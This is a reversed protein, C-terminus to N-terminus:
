FLEPRASGRALFNSFKRAPRLRALFIEQRALDPWMKRGLFAIKTYYDELFWEFIPEARFNKELRAVFHRAPGLRAALCKFLKPGPRARALSKIITPGLRPRAPGHGSPDRHNFSDRFKMTLHFHQFWSLWIKIANQQKKIQKLRKTRTNELAGIELTDNSGADAAM